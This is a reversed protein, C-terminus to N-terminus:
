REAFSGKCYMCFFAQLRAHPHQQRPSHASLFIVFTGLAGDKQSLAKDKWLLVRFISALFRRVRRTITSSTSLIRLYFHWAFSMHIFLAVCIGLNEVFLEIKGCFLWWIQHPSFGSAARSLAAPLSFVCTSIDCPFIVISIVSQGYVFLCKQPRNATIQLTM